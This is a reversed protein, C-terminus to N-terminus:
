TEPKIHTIPIAPEMSKPGQQKGNVRQSRGQLPEERVEFGLYTRRQESVCNRTNANKDVQKRPTFIFAAKTQVAFTFILIAEFNDELVQIKMNRQKYHIKLILPTLARIIPMHATPILNINSEASLTM